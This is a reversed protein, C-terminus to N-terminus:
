DLHYTVSVHELYAKMQVDPKKIEVDISGSYPYQKRIFHAIRYALSELLHTPEALVYECIEILKSYDLTDELNDSNAAKVIDFGVELSILFRQDIAAENEFAGHKGFIELDKIKIKGM